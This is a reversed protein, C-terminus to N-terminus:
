RIRNTTALGSSITTKLVGNLYINGTDTCIVIGNGGGISELAVM